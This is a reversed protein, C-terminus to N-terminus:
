TGPSRFTQAVPHLHDGPRSIHPRSVPTHGWGPVCAPHAYRALAVRSQKALHAAPQSKSPPPVCAAFEITAPSNTCLTSFLDCQPTHTNRALYGAQAGRVRVAAPAHLVIPRDHTCHACQCFPRTATFCGSDSGLDRTSRRGRWVRGIARTIKENQSGRTRLSHGQPCGSSLTLRRERM